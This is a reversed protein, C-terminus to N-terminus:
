TLTVKHPDYPPADELRRADTEMWALGSPLSQITLDFLNDSCNRLSFPREDRYVLIHRM